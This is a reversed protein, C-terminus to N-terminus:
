ASGLLLAVPLRSFIEPVALKPGISAVPMGTFGDLWGRPAEKPLEVFTDRWIEPGLPPVEPETLRSFFRGALALVWQHELRRAFAVVHEQRPGAIKLPLYEGNAFVEANAQRLQLAKYTIFLKLRGDRWTALLQAPLPRGGRAELAKIEKLLTQRRKFDVPRRNDPDVLSLDWLESGQFFDPVGPSAIKLLV